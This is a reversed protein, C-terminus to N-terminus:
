DLIKLMRGKPTKGLTIERHTQTDLSYFRHRM